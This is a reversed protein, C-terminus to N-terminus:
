NRMGTFIWTKCKVSEVFDMIIRSDGLISLSWFSLSWILNSIVTSNRFKCGWGTDECALTVKLVVGEGKIVVFRRRKTKSASGKVRM